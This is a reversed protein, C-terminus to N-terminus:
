QAGTFRSFPIAGANEGRLLTGVYLLLPFEQERLKGAAIAKTVSSVLRQAIVVSELTIGKLEEIAESFRMGRGLLTGLKRTRGGFVTVYLDGAGYVINDADAGAFQLITRMERVSQGFLAAQPNYAETCGVGESKEIMGIALTVGLAYANKMAVACEVGLVDASLSPHYYDTELLAQLYKLVQMNEGCFAVCTQRRDALEYSTCPGGIACFTLRGTTQDKYYSPFPLLTGDEQDILGKTVALVPMGDSILPVVTELFWDVGFSSVGCIVVDTDELAERLDEIQFFAIGEPLQRKMTLHAGTERAHDIIERDLHTGIIRVTHGNDRAPVSMASGMMGAGVITIVSM